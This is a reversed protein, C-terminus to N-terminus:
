ALDPWPGFFGVISTLKGDPGLTGFDVGEMVVADDPGIMKWAFRLYSDHEDVGSALDIRHGGMMQQFGGIHAVLAERGDARGSPDLYTGDEAWAQALLDRRKEEDTEAWAAGYTAVVEAPGM